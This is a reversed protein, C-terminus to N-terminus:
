ICSKIAKEFINFIKKYYRKTEGIPQHEKWRTENLYFYFLNKYNSNKDYSKYIPKRQYFHIIYPNKEEMNSFCNWLPDIILWDKNLVVNLGYQDPFNAFPKNTQVCDLVKQTVEYEEWKKRNIILLGTNFYKSDKDLGLADYNKIGGWENSVTGIFDTVAAIINEGLNIYWLLSIDTLVIMDVDLYIIKKIERPLFYPIFLRIYINLPYSSRDLPLAMGTPIIENMKFWHITLKDSKCSEELKNINRRTLRDGVIFYDIHEESHHNVVISKILAALLIIYHNDTVSVITINISSKILPAM